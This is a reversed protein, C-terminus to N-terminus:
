LPHNYGNNTVGPSKHMANHSYKILAYLKFVTKERISYAIQHLENNKDKIIQKIGAKESINLPSNCSIQGNDNEVM